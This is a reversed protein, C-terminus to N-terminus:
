RGSGASRRRVARPDRRGHRPRATGLRGALDFGPAEGGSSCCARTPIVNAAAVAFADCCSRSASARTSTVSAASCRLRRCTPRRLSRRRRGRRSAPHALASRRLRARARAREVYHSHVILGHARDLMEGALPFDEPRVEWLPPVRGELVGYVSCAAPSRRRRAGDRRSLRAAKRPRDHSGAVLHHLVFEHLVVVGPRRRLADVIWGHADPDNGIHYLPSTRTPSPRTGAPSAGGRGRRARSRRCRAAGLLRRDGVRSPPLPSFYAVKMAVSALLRDICTDWTVASAVAPRRPRVRPGRRRADRLWGCARALEAPSPAVVLGTKRDHVVDLPGGADTTTLVPKESLFAEFPVMGFDEDVPAYYVALCRAYLDALQEDDVRPRHVRRPRRSRPRPSGSSGSATPAKAPSSSACRRSPAGGGRAAPRDAERPRAPQGLPHLGRLRDCRYALPQPPHPM